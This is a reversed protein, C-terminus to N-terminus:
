VTLFSNRETHLRRLLTGRLTSFRKTCNGFHPTVGHLNTGLFGPSVSSGRELGGTDHERGQSEQRFEDGKRERILRNVFCSSFQLKGRLQKGRGKMHHELKCM